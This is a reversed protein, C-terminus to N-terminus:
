DGFFDDFGTEDMEDLSCQIHAYEGDINAKGVERSDILLGCRVCIIDEDM